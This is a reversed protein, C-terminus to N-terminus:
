GYTIYSKQGSMWNNITKSQVWNRFKRKANKENIAFCKFAVADKKINSTNLEGRSNFFYERAGKPCIPEKPLYVKMDDKRGTIMMSQGGSMALAVATLAAVKQNMKNSM